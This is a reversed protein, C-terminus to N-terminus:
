APAAELGASSQGSPGGAEQPLEVYSPLRKNDQLNPTILDEGCALTDNELTILQKAMIETISAPRMNSEPVVIRVGEHIVWFSGRGERGVIRAPGDMKREQLFLLDGLNYPGRLPAHNEYFLLEFVDHSTLVLSHWRLPKDFRWSNASLMGMTRFKKTSALIYSDDAAEDTM